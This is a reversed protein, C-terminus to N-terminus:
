TAGDVGGGKRARVEREGRIFGAIDLSAAGSGHHILVGRKRILASEAGTVRLRVEGGLSEVELEAGPFLNLEDRISKPIVTRGAKDITTKM